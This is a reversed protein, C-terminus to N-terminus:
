RMSVQILVNTNKGPQTCMGLVNILLPMVQTSRTLQERVEPCSALLKLTGLGYILTEQEGELDVQLLAEVLCGVCYSTMCSTVTNDHCVWDVGGDLLLFALLQIFLCIDTYGRM